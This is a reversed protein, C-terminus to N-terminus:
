NRHDHGNAFLSKFPERCCLGTALLVLSASSVDCKKIEKGRRRGKTESNWAYNVRGFVM